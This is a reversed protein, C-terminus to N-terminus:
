RSWLRWHSILRACKQAAALSHTVEHEVGDATWRAEHAFPQMCHRVEGLLADAVKMLLAFGSSGGHETALIHTLGSLRGTLLYACRSVCSAALQAATQAMLALALQPTQFNSTSLLQEPAFVVVPNDGSANIEAALVPALYEASPYGAGLIVSACRISLPGQLGRAAAGRLLSGTLLM